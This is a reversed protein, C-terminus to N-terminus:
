IVDLVCVCVCYFVKFQWTISVNYYTQQKLLAGRLMLKKIVATDRSLRRAPLTLSTTQRIIGLNKKVGGWCSGVVSLFALNFYRMCRCSVQTISIQDAQHASICHVNVSRLHFWQSSQQQIFLLFQGRLLNKQCFGSLPKLLCHVIIHYDLLDHLSRNKKLLHLLISTSLQNYVTRLSM